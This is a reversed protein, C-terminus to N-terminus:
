VCHYKISLCSCANLWDILIYPKELNLVISYTVKIFFGWIYEGIKCKNYQGQYHCEFDLIGQHFRKGQEESYADMNEKFEDLHVDFVYVKLSMKCGM